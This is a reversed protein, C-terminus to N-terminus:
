AGKADVAAAVNQRSGDIMHRGADDEIHLMPRFPEFKCCASFAIKGGTM